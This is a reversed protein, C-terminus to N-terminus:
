QVALQANSPANPLQSGVYPYAGMYIGGEGGSVAPSSAQLHFDGSTESVFLPDSNISHSDCNCLSRWSSLTGAGSGGWAGIQDATGSFLNYDSTLQILSPDNVHIFDHGIPSWISRVINNKITLKGEWIWFGTYGFNFITNNYYFNQRGFDLGNTHYSNRIGVNGINYIVNNRATVNSCQMEIFLGHSNLSSGRPNGLDHKNQDINWITNGDILWNDAGADCWLGAWTAYSQNALTCNASADFDHILNKTIVTGDNGLIIHMGIANVSSDSNRGCKINKFENQDITINLTKAMILGIPRINDFVNGRVISNQVRFAGSLNLAGTTDTRDADAQTGGWNKFTNGIVQAGTTDRGEAAIKLAANTSTNVAAGDFTLNRVIWYDSDRIEIAKQRTGGNSNRVIFSAGTDPELIVPNAQTGSRNSVLASQDYIGTGTRIRITDGANVVNFANQISCYPATTTGSGPCSRTNDVYLIAAQVAATSLLGMVLLCGTIINFVKRM